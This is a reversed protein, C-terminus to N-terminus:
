GGTVLPLIEVVDCDQIPSKLGGSFICNRGNVLIVSFKRTADSHGDLIKQLLEELIVQGEVPLNIIEGGTAKRTNGYFKFTAM